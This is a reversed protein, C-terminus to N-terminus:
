RGCAVEEFAYDRGIAGAPPVKFLDRSVGYLDDYYSALRRDIGSGYSPQATLTRGYRYHTVRGDRVVLDGDKFVLHAFRFMQARDPDDNYVAVDALAGPSLHGRDKLGLLKAPAVRTMAAIESFSYERRLSPLTTMEVAEKPLDALWKARADRSMILAFLEPYTTYPAGNPHDTTFLARMPDDLLLFLELGCAWQVANYFNDSKYLYPVVGAGNADGDYIVSKRPKAMPRASWQRIVDLSVTVTQRFMVQGIDVTIEKPAANIAAALQAAASSFGRKGEKGYSYFQIHALHIPKGEAAAITKIATEVNGPVGLNNIHLHLPHPIGLDIVAQQLAQIIQRSTVGYNPVVDDLDFTRANEQFAVSGGPNITKVGLAKSAAVTAAVYDAIAKSSARDRLLSLLFDDEGLATLNGKDLIPIDALELHSHLAYHPPVAPEIITTFGMAAYRCGTEFTSWGATSLPTEAPRPRHARHNEPLLLRATNVNGSAVHSHIEIAGAMVIKGSVDYVADPTEGQPPAIIRDGRIWLDGVGDRKNAPDVIRGGALRILM